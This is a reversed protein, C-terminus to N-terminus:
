GLCSIMRLGGSGCDSGCVRFNRRPFLLSGLITRGQPRSNQSCGVLFDRGCKLRCRMWHGFYFNQLAIDRTGKWSFGCSCIFSFLFANYAERPKHMLNPFDGIKEGSEASREAGLSTRILSDLLSYVLLPLIMALFILFDFLCGPILVYMPPVFPNAM